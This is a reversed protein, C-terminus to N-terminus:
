IYMYILFHLYYENIIYWTKKKNVFDNCETRLNWAVRRQLKQGLALDMM